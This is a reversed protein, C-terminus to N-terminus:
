ELAEVTGSGIVRRTADLAEQLHARALLVGDVRVVDVPENGVRGSGGLVKVQQSTLDHQRPALREHDGRGFAKQSMGLAGRREGVEVSGCM